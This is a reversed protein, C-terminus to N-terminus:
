NKPRDMRLTFPKGTRLEYAQHIAWTILALMHDGRDDNRQTHENIFDKSQIFLDYDERVLDFELKCHIIDNPSKPEDEFISVQEITELKAKTNTM